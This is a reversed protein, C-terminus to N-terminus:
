RLAEIRQLVPPHSYHVFVYAPHPTLNSLNDVSLKKLALIMPETGYTQRAFDDAEFENKRSYMNMLVGTVLSIPSYLLGFALLGLHFSPQEAGLMQALLPNSVLWGFVLFLVGMQLVSLVLGKQIHKRKYHGVEHAIVAVLEEVSHNEILTDFLVITKRSGLGSFYANSKTSRKSGNMVMVNKLPFDVKGAYTELATRLEGDELPTLENFIPVLVSTYFMSIFLSFATVIGWAILWFWSGTLMYVWIILSLIGGGMIATLLYGKLKDIIFTGATTKNFGYKEEIVFIRYLSFPLGILDNVIYLIGFFSLGMLIPQTTYERVMNDLWAFGGFLLLSVIIILSFTGSIAGFQTTERSYTQMKSYKEADVFGEMEQPIHASRNKLNIFDLLREFLFELIIFAVVAYLLTQANM